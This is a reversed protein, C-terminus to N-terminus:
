GVDIRKKQEKKRHSRGSGTVMKSNKYGMEDFLIPINVNLNQGCFVLYPNVLYYVDNKIKVEYIIGKEELSKMNERVTKPHIGMKEALRTQNLPKDEDDVLVNMEWMLYESIDIIFHREGKTLSYYEEAHKIEHYFVKVFHESKKWHRAESDDFQFAANINDDSYKSLYYNIVDEKIEQIRATNVDISFTKDIIQKTLAHQEKAKRKSM